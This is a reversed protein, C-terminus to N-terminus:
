NELYYKGNLNKGRLFKCKVSKKKSLEVHIRRWSEDVKGRFPFGLPTICILQLHTTKWSLLDGAPNSVSSIDGYTERCKYSTVKGNDVQFRVASTRTPRSWVESLHYYNPLRRWVHTANWLIKKIFAHFQLVGEMMSNLMSVVRQVKNLDM